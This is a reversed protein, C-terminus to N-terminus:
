FLKATKFGLCLFSFALAKKNEFTTMLIIIKIHRIYHIPFRKLHEHHLIQVSKVWGGLLMKTHVSMWFCIDNELLKTTGIQVYHPSGIDIFRALPGGSDGHCASIGEGPWGACINHSTFWKPLM